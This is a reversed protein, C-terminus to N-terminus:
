EIRWCRPCPQRDVFMGRRVVITGTGDCESCRGKTLLVYANRLEMFHEASGGKDPHHEQALRRYATTIEAVTATESVGLAIHAKSM